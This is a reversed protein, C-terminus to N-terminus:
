SSTMLKYIGAIIPICSIALSLLAGQAQDPELVSEKANNPNFYVTVKTGKRYKNVVQQAADLTGSTHLNGWFIRDSQYTKGHLSYEYQVIPVAPNGKRYSEFVYSKTINGTTIHWYESKRSKRLNCFSWIFWISGAIILAVGFFAEM